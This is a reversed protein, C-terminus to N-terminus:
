LELCRFGYLGCILGRCGGLVLWWKQVGSSPRGGLLGLGVLLRDSAVAAVLSRSVAHSLTQIELLSIASKDRSM